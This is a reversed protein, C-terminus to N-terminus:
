QIVYFHGLFVYTALQTGKAAPINVDRRPQMGRDFTKLVVNASDQPNADMFVVYFQEGNNASRVGSFSEPSLGTITAEQANAHRASSIGASLFFLFLLRKMHVM